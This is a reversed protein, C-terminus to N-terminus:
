GIQYDALFAQAHRVREPDAECREYYHQLTRKGKESTDLRMWLPPKGAIYEMFERVHRGLNPAETQWHMLDYRGEYIEGDEYEIHFDCKDYGGKSPATTSWVRLLANAMPFSDVTRPQDCSGRPDEVRTITITKVKIM